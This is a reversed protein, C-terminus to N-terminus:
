NGGMCTVYLEDVTLEDANVEGVIEGYRMILIRNCVELLEELESSVMISAIGKRSQEWIIQFIQQKANVDIGRSPEDFMIIRPDTNLWNGVVVKQQNGGSLSSVRVGPTSVKIDLEEIQKHIAKTEARWDVFGKRSLKDLSAFCLNEGVTRIQTLGKHGRDEQTMALGLGKMKRLTPKKVEKGDMFIQGSDFPDAGFISMLLETRGSGLMGAIGLVEGKSRFLV